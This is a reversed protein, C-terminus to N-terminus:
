YHNSDLFEWIFFNTEKPIVTMTRTNRAPSTANGTDPAAAVASDTVPARFCDTFAVTDAPLGETPSGTVILPVTEPLM